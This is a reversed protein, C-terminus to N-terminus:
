IRSLLELGSIGAEAPLPCRIWWKIYVLCVFKVFRELLSAQGDTMLPNKGIKRDIKDKLLFLDLSYIAKAMWRAKSLAGPQTFKSGDTEGTLVVVVM